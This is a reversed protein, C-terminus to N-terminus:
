HYFLRTGTICMMIKHRDCAEIVEADRLSGGPQAIYRVNSLAARDINDTFPFFGDSALTLEGDLRSNRKIRNDRELM